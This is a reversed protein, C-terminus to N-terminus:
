AVLRRTDIIVTETRNLYSVEDGNWLTADIQYKSILHVDTTKCWFIQIRIEIM